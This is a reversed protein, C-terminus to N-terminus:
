AQEPPRLAGRLAAILEPYEELAARGAETLAYLGKGLREFWGYHNAYLIAGTKAPAGANRLVAPAAPGSAELAAAVTLAQERYATMVPLKNQGGVNLNFSRGDMETLLARTVAGRKRRVSEVPHFRVEVRPLVTDLCVVLLGLELRKLVRTADRWRKGEDAPRPVAVYVSADAEQRAVAQILLDLTLSRKMEILVVDEGRRAAIDCHKVEARVTYGGAELWQRLPEFLDTERIPKMSQRRRATAIGRVVRPLYM